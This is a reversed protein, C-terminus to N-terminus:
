QMPEGYEVGYNQLRDENASILNVLGQLIVFHLQEVEDLSADEDEEEVEVVDLSRVDVGVVWINKPVNGGLIARNGM